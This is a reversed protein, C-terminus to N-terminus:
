TSNWVMDEEFGKKPGWRKGWWVGHLGWLLNMNFFRGQLITYICKDFNSINCTSCFINNGWIWPLWGTTIVSLRWSIDGPIGFSCFLIIISLFCELKYVELWCVLIGTCDIITTRPSMSLHYFRVEPFGHLCLMLPKSPDGKVVYHIRLNSATRLFNHEGLEPDLLCAPATRHLRFILLM